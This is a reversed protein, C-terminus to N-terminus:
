DELVYEVIKILFGLPDHIKKDRNLYARLQLNEDLLKKVIAYNVMTQEQDKELRNDLRFLHLSKYLSKKADIIKKILNRDILYGGCWCEEIFFEPTNKDLYLTIHYGCTLCLPMRKFGGPIDM